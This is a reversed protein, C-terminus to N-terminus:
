PFFLPLEGLSAKKINMVSCQCFPAGTEGAAQWHTRQEKSSTRSGGTHSGRSTDQSMRILSQGWPKRRKVTVHLYKHWCEVAKRPNTQERQESYCCQPGWISMGVGMKLYSFSYRRYLFVFVLIWGKPLNFCSELNNLPTITKFVCMAVRFLARDKQKKIGAYYHVIEQMHTFNSKHVSNQQLHWQSTNWHTQSM